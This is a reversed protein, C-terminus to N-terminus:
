KEGKRRENRREKMGRTNGEEWSEKARDRKRKKEEEKKKMRKKDEVREEQIREEWDRENKGKKRWM